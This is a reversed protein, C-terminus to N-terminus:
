LARGEETRQSCVAKRQAEAGEAARAGMHGQDMGKGQALSRLVPISRQPLATAGSPCTPSM